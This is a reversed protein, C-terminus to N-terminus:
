KGELFEKVDKAAISFFTNAPAPPSNAGYTYAQMATGLSIRAATMDGTFTQTGSGGSIPCTPSSGALPDPNYCHNNLFWSSVANSAATAYIGGLSNLLHLYEYDEIGDRLLQLRISPVFIPHASSAGAVDCNASGKSPALTSNSCPYALTGDGNTGQNYVNTWPDSGSCFGPNGWCLLADYYLIGSEQYDFTLWPEAENSVPTGDITYAPFGPDVNCASTGTPWPNCISPPLNGSAYSYPAGYGVYGNLADGTSGNAQYDWMQRAPGTGSCCNGALWSTYDARHNGETPSEACFYWPAALSDLCVSPVVMVDVSNEFQAQSPAGSCNNAAYIWTTVLLPINPTTYGRTYTADNVLNTLYTCNTGPEDMVYDAWGNPPDSLWGNASMNAEFYGIATQCNSGSGPSGYTSCGAMTNPGANMQGFKSGPMIRRTGTLYVPDTGNDLPGQFNAVTYSSGYCNSTSGTPNCAASVTLRHDLFFVAADEAAGWTGGPFTGCNTTDFQPCYALDGPWGGINTRLTASSPMYGGDIQPWQWVGLLVPLTAITGATSDSITVTGSYWGSPAAQPVYVDIWASQNYGATVAVPWAATTQHYYPDIAPILPDPYYGTPNSITGLCNIGGLCSPTAADIYGERYVTIPPNNLTGGVPSGNITFSNGLTVPSSNMIGANVTTCPLTSCINAYVNYGTAGTISPPSTVVVECNGSAHCTSSTQVTTTAAASPSLYSFGTYAVFVSVYQSAPLNGGAIPNGVTTAPTPPAISYNAGPGTTKSLASMSVTIGAYGGVPAHVHAQFGQFENQAAYITVCPSSGEISSPSGSRQQLKILPGSLAVNSAYDAPNCDQAPKYSNNLPDRQAAAGLACLFLAAALLHLKMTTAGM